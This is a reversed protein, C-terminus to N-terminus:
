SWRNSLLQGIDVDLLNISRRTDHDEYGDLVKSFVAFVESEGDSRTRSRATVYASIAASNAVDDHSFRSTGHDVTDKGNRGTRRELGLLERRLTEDDPIEIRDATFLPLMYLYADSRTVESAMLNIGAEGYISRSLEAGYQDATANFLGYNKLFAAVERAVVAPDHPSPWRRVADIIVREGDLHSVSAATADKRGGSVDVGAYYIIPTGNATHPLMPLERPRDRTVSDVLPADLFDASDTRFESLYEAKNAAFDRRLEEDIFSQPITPNLQRTTALAFLVRADAISFHKRYSDYFEGRSAYVSSIVILMAEAQSAMGPRIARLIELADEVGWFAFEDAIVALLTAGRVSAQDSTGIRIEIGNALRICDATISEVEARLMESSEFLGRAYNFAVKAQARDVALLLIVGVEGPALKWAKFLALYAAIRTAVFDKGARRGAAIWLERVARTPPTRQTLQRFIAKEERSLKCGFAGGVVARWALFSKADLGLIKCSQLFTLSATM